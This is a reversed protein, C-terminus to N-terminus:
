ETRASTIFSLIHEFGFKKRKFKRIERKVNKNLLVYFVPDLGSNCLAIVEVIMTFPKDNSPEYINALTLIDHVLHPFWCLVFTVVILLCVFISKALKISQEKKTSEDDVVRNLKIMNLHKKVVGYVIVSSATLIVTAIGILITSLVLYNYKVYDSNLGISLFLVPLLWSSVIVILCHKSTLSEYFVPYKIAILRDITTTILILFMGMLMVNNFLFFITTTHSGFTVVSIAIMIHTVQLNLFLKTSISSRLNRRILIMIVFINLIIIVFGQIRKVVVEYINLDALGSTENVSNNRVKFVEYFTSSFSPDSSKNM